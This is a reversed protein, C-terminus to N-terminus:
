CSNKTIINYEESSKVHYKLHQFFVVKSLPDGKKPGYQLEFENHIQFRYYEM